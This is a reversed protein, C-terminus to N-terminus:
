VSTSIGGTWSATEPDQISWRRGKEIHRRVLGGSGMKTRAAVLREAENDISLVQFYGATMLVAFPAILASRTIVALLWMSGVLATTILVASASALSIFLKM